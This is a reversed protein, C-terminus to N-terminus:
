EIFRCVDHTLISWSDLPCCWRGEVGLEGCCKVVAGGCWRLRRLLVVASAWDVTPTRHNTTTNINNQTHRTGPEPDLRSLWWPRWTQQTNLQAERLQKPIMRGSFYCFYCCSYCSCDSCFCCDCYCYHYHYYSLLFCSVALVETAVQGPFIYM